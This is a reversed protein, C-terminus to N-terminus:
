RPRIDMVKAAWDLAVDEIPDANWSLLNYRGPMKTWRLEKVMMPGDDAIKVICLQNRCEASVGRQDRRFFMLWGDKLPRMSDGKIRVAVFNDGEVSLPALAEELGQGQPHDDYLFLEAGAGIQGVVPVTELSALSLSANGSMPGSGDLLWAPHVGLYRMLESLKASRPKTDDSEWQSVAERSIDFHDAVEQQTKGARDRAESIRSGLTMLNNQLGTKGIIDM